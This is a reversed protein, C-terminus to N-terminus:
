TNTTQKWAKWTGEFQVRIYSTGDSLATAEQIKHGDVVDFVTTKVYFWGDTSIPRDSVASKYIAFTNVSIDNLSGSSVITTSPIMGELTKLESGM